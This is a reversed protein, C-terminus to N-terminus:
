AVPVTVKRGRKARSIRQLQDGRAYANWCRVVAHYRGVQDGAYPPKTQAEAWRNRLALRPDGLTLESGSTLGELWSGIRDAHDARAAQCLIALHTAKDIRTARYVVDAPIAFEELEPWQDVLELTEALSMVHTRVVYADNLRGSGQRVLEQEDREWALIRAAQAIATSHLGEIFQSATRRKGVDVIKFSSPDCGYAVVFEMPLKALVVAALRHQGDLVKGETDIAIPQHTAHWHGERMQQAYFRVTQASLRRQHEPTQLLLENALEPTVLTQEFTISM